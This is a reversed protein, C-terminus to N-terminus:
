QRVDTDARPEPSAQTLSEQPSLVVSCARGAAKAQYLARDARELTERLSEGDPHRTVGASFTVPRDALTPLAAQQARIRDLAQLAQELQPDPSPMMLLFEEGGWRALVDTQRLVSVAALAFDKLVEDGIHHGYHDNIHKFHDLDILALCFGEGTRAQRERQQDLLQLMHRRNVLGTMDDRIAVEQLMALAQRLEAKQQTMRRRIRAVYYAVASIAPLILACMTFKLLAARGDYEGPMLVVMGGVVSGLCIITLAGILLVQRPSLTFVGFILLLAVLPLVGERIPGAVVYAAMMAGLAFLCQPFDMGPYGLRSSWGSRVMLYFSTVGIWIAGLLWYVPQARILGFHAAMLLVISGAAYGYIAIWSFILRSRIKPEQSLLLNVLRPLLTSM